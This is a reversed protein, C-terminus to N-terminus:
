DNDEEDDEDSDIEEIEGPDDSEDDESSLSFGQAIEWAEDINDAEFDVRQERRYQYLPM